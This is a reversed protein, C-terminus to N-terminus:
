MNLLLSRFLLLVLHIVMVIYNYVNTINNKLKEFILQLFCERIPPKEVRRNQSNRPNLDNEHFNCCQIYKRQERSLRLNITRVYVHNRPLRM